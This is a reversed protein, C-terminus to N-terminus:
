LQVEQTWRDYPLRKSRNKGELRELAQRQTQPFEIFVAAALKQDVPISLKEFMTASKFQGGSSWYTGYGGATCILLLNQVMASTAALHEENVSQLKEPDSIEKTTQPIWNVLVLAGCASLMAPLKNTPKMDSFWLPMAEAVKRCESHWLVHCRWPEAIGDVNRDYHFPAWGADAIALRVFEEDAQTDSLTVPSEVEGLVKFTQRARIASRVSEIALETEENM